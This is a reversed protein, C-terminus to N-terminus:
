KELDWTDSCEPEKNIIVIQCKQNPGSPLDSDDIEKMLDYGLKILELPTVTMVQRLTKDETM